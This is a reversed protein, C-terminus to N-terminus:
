REALAGDTVHYRPAQVQRILQRQHEGLRVVVGPYAVDWVKVEMGAPTSDGWQAKLTQRKQLLDQYQQAVQGLRQAYKVLVRQRPGSAAKILNKIQTVDVRALGLREVIQEMQASSTEINSELRDLERAQEPALGVVLM